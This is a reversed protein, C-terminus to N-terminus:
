QLGGFLRTLADTLLSSMRTSRSALGPPLQPAMRAYGDALTRTEILARALQDEIPVSRDESWGAELPPVDPPPGGAPEFVASAAFPGVQRDRHAEMRCRGSCYRRPPGSRGRPPLTEGCQQCKGFPM